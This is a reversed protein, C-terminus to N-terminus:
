EIVGSAKRTEANQQKEDIKSTLKYNSEKIFVILILNLCTLDLFIDSSTWGERLLRERGELWILELFKAHKM